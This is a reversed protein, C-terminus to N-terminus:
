TIWKVIYCKVARLSQLSGLPLLAVHPTDALHRDWLFHVSPERDWQQEDSLCTRSEQDWLSRCVLRGQGGRDALNEEFECGNLWHHLVMM